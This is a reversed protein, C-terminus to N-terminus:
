AGPCQRAHGSLAPSRGGDNVGAYRFRACVSRGVTRQAATEDDMGPPRTVRESRRVSKLDTEYINKFFKKLLSIVRIM